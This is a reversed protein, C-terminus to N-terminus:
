RCADADARPPRPAAKAPAARRLVDRRPRRASRSARCRRRQPAGGVASRRLGGRLVIPPGRRETSPLLRDGDPKARWNIPTIVIGPSNAPGTCRRRKGATRCCPSSTTALAQARAPRLGGVIASIRDCGNGCLDAAPRRRRHRDCRPERAVSALFSRASILCPGEGKPSPHGATQPWKWARRSSAPTAPAAASIAASVHRPTGARDPEARTRLYHM